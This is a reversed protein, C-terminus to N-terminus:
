VTIEACLSYSSAYKEFIDAPKGLTETEFEKVEPFWQDTEIEIIKDNQSYENFLIRYFTFKQSQRKKSLMIGKHDM